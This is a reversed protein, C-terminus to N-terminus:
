KEGKRYKLLEIENALARKYLEVFNRQGSYLCTNTSDPGLEGTLASRSDVIVGIQNGGQMDPYVKVQEGALPFERDTLLVTKRGSAALAELEKEFLPLQECACVVYARERATSLLHKVKDVINHEGEITIYGEEATRREPANRRLWEETEQLKRIRNSCFEEVDVAVYKRTHGEEMMRAGGKDALSALGGYANSRSIGTLKAAEYGSCKGEDLLCYYLTAEQRTLGFEMLRDTYAGHEM